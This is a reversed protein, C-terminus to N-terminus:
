RSPTTRRSTPIWWPQGPRHRPAPLRMIFTYRIGRGVWRLLSGVSRLHGYDDFQFLVFLTYIKRPDLQRLLRIRVFMTIGLDTLHNNRIAEKMTLKPVSVLFDGCGGGAADANCIRGRLADYRLRSEGLLFAFGRPFVLWLLWRFANLKRQLKAIDTQSIEAAEEAAAREATLAALRARAIPRYQERPTSRYTFDALDLATYPPLLQTPSQWYQQLHQYTTRYRNAWCSDDRSFVAQSAFPMYLDAALQDCLRCVYDVYHRAPKLSVIGTEDLFSNVVSAPSYSCLLVKPKGIRDAVRRIAGLVPPLPKADNLNLILATPTDVLLLSDDNWVPISLVAVGDAIGRWRLPAVIEARFGRQTMYDLYGREALAPFLYVPGSGLRRITPMHFHDPHEHTVYICSSRALWDIEEGSPYNQLWWSRWYVSGLLWPDTALLPVEGDRYLVACAHGLTKLYLKGLAAPRGGAAAPASPEVSATVAADCRAVRAEGGATHPIRAFRAVM